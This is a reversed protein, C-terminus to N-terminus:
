RSRVSLVLESNALEAGPISRGSKVTALLFQRDLRPLQPRWFEEPILTEDIVILKTPGPRLSATFEPEVVKKLGAEQM